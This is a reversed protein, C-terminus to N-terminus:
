RAFEKHFGFTEMKKIAAKKIERARQESVGWKSALSQMTTMEGITGDYFGVNKWLIDKERITMSVSCKEMFRFVSNRAARSSTDKDGPIEWGKEMMTTMSTCSKAQAAAEKSKESNRYSYEAPTRITSQKDIIARLIAQRVWWVAYSLFAIEPALNHQDIAQNMGIAGESFLEDFDFGNQVYRRAIAAIFRGNSEVLRQRAKVDGDRARLLLAWQDAKSLPVFRAHNLDLRSKYNPLIM